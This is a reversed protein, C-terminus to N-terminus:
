GHARCESGVNMCVCLPMRGSEPNQGEWTGEAGRGWRRQPVHHEGNRGKRVVPGVEPSDGCGVLEELNSGYFGCSLHTHSWSM